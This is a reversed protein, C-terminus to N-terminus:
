AASGSDLAEAIQGGSQRFIVVAGKAKAAAIKKGVWRRRMAAGWSHFPCGFSQLYARRATNM